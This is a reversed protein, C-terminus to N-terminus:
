WGISSSEIVDMDKILLYLDLRSPSTTIKKKYKDILNKKWPIQNNYWGNIYEKEYYRYFMLANIKKSVPIWENIYYLNLIRIKFLYNKMLNTIIVTSKKVIYLRRIKKNLTNKYVKKNVLSLKKNDNISLYECVRSYIFDEFIIEM